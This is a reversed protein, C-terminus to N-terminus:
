FTTLMSSVEDPFDQDPLVIDPVIDAEDSQRCIVIFIEM